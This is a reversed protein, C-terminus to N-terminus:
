RMPLHAVGLDTVCVDARPADDILLERADRAVDLVAVEELVLRQERNYAAHLLAATGQVDHSKNRRAAHVAMVIMEEAHELKCLALPQGLDPNVCEEIPAIHRGLARRFVERCDLFLRRLDTDALDRRDAAAVVRHIAIVAPLALLKGILRNRMCLRLRRCLRRDVAHKGGVGVRALLGLAHRILEDDREHDLSIGAHLVAVARDEVVETGITRTLERMCKHILLKVAELAILRQLDRERRERLVLRAHICEHRERGLLDVVRETLIHLIEAIRLQADSLRLLVCMDREEEVASSGYLPSSRM